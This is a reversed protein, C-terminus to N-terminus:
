LLADLVRIKPSTKIRCNIFSCDKIFLANHPQLDVPESSVIRKFPDYFAKTFGNTSLMEQCEPTVTELQIAQLSDKSLFARAGRLVEEEYGEVDLKAFVPKSDGVFSDLTKQHVTRCSHEGGAIVRNITDLGITFGVEGENAGLACEHITVLESLNNIEINRKLDLVTTPDPEFALTRAKCVGSALVSYAGVNAGIDFFLDNSRLLHLLFIMDPFEHLGVYINGTAGTMGHRVVLRQNAIWSVIVEHQLRSKIQWVAVRGLTKLRANRTLPHSTVFKVLRNVAIMNIPELFRRHKYTSIYIKSGGRM